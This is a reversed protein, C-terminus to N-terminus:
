KLLRIEQVIGGRRVLLEVRAGKGVNKLTGPRGDKRVVSVNDALIFEIDELGISNERVYWVQGDVTFMRPTGSNQETGVANGAFMAASILLPILVKKM